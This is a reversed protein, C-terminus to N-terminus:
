IRKRMLRSLLLLLGTEGLTVVAIYIFADRWFREPYLRIFTDSYPFIWTNGEFFIRHFTVFLVGFSLGITLGIGLMLLVTWLAGRQVARAAVDRAGSRWLIALTVLILGLGVGLVVWVAQLLQKVDEMHKLERANHMPSGDDLTFNDFYDPGADNLLYEIDVTSWYIRDELTFGYRDEPFGPLRYEFPTWLKATVIIIWVSLLILVIPLSIQVIVGAAKNAKLIIKNSRV